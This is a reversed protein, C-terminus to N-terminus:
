LMSTVVSGSWSTGLPWTVEAEWIGRPTLLPLAGLAAAGGAGGLRNFDM